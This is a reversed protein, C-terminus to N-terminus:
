SSACAYNYDLNKLTYQTILLQGGTFSPTSCAAKAAKLSTAGTGLWLPYGIRWSGVIQQWQNPTSYIGIHSSFLQGAGIARVMGSLDAQNATMNTTWSNDTEVDIWIYTTHLGNLRAAKLSYLAAQYGYNYSYCILNHAPCKIPGTGIKAIRPFSPNGSNLYLSYYRANAAENAMCPNLNFDRGGDVGIIAAAYDSSPISLCNPWSLDVLRYDWPINSFSALCILLILAPAAILVSRTILDSAFLDLFRRLRM